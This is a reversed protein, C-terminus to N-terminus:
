RVYLPSLALLFILIVLCVVIVLRLLYIGMIKFFDNATKIGRQKLKGLRKLVPLQYKRSLLDGEL